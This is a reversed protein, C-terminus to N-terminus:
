KTSVFGVERKNTQIAASMPQAHRADECGDEERERAKRDHAKPGGEKNHETESHNEPTAWARVPAGARDM